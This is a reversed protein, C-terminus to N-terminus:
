AKEAAVHIGVLEEIIELALEGRAFAGLQLLAQSRVLLQLALERHRSLNMRTHATGRSRSALDQQRGFRVNRLAARWRRTPAANIM